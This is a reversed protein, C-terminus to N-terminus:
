LAVGPQWCEHTCGNHADAEPNIRPNIWPNIPEEV